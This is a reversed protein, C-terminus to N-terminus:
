NFLLFDGLDEAGPVAGDLLGLFQDVGLLPQLFAQHLLQEGAPHAERGEARRHLLCALQWLPPLLLSKSM